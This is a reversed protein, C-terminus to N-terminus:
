PRAPCMDAEASGDSSEASIVRAAFAKAVWVTPVLRQAVRRPWAASPVALWFTTGSSDILVADIVQDGVGAPLADAPVALRVM